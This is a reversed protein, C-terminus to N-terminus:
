TSRMMIRLIETPRFVLNIKISDFIEAITLKAVVKRDWVSFVLVFRAVADQPIGTAKSNPM